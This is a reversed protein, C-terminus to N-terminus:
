DDYRQHEGHRHHMRKGMFEQLEAKQEGNLSDLFSALSALVAPARDNIQQTKDQIMQLAKTQDLVPEAILNQIRSKHEEHGARVETMLQIMDDALVKLNAQQAENLELKDTVREIVFEAKDEPTMKWSNHKGYAFVGGSLGLATIAAIIIKTSKKM